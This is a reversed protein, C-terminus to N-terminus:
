KGKYEPPRKELFSKIGETRDSTTHLLFYLDAELKLGQELTLDMGKLVAEKLYRLAIPGKSAITEALKAAEGGVADAPVVKSVLGIELAEAATIAEATLLLELAKGRGVIRALRQTGGGEPIAGGAVQPMAFRAKDSAIRIDCSLAIELGVGLADGNVAAVVPQEISAVATSVSASDKSGTCFASGSGTLIVVFIDNDATIQRCIDALEQAADRDIIPNLLTIAAVRNKTSFAVTKNPM